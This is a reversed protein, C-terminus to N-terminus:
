QSDDGTGDQGNPTEEGGPVQIEGSPLIPSGIGNMIGGEQEEAEEPTPMKVKEGTNPDILTGDEPEDENGEEGEQDEEEDDDGSEAEQKAANEAAVEEQMDAPIEETAYINLYPLAEKM